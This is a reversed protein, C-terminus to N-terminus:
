YYLNKKSQCVVNKDVKKGLNKKKFKRNKAKPSMVKNKGKSDANLTASRFDVLSEAAAMASPIDKVGQRRLETQAWPQLGSLFNFLKDEESMNSIDLLLSSFQKVYKRTSGTQKLKKLSDRALWSTNCPLFQDWLEKWFM